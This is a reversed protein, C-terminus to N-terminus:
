QDTVVFELGKQYIELRAQDDGLAAYITALDFFIQACPQLRNAEELYDRAKGYLEMQMCIHGLAALLHPNQPHQKLWKEALALQKKSEKVVLAAFATILEDQWQANLRKSLLNFASSADDRAVLADVYAILIETEQRLQKPIKSWLADLKSESDADQAEDSFSRLLGCYTAVELQRLDKKEYVQLKKLVPLLDFLTSWDAYKQATSSLSKLVDLNEPETQYLSHLTKLAQKHKSDELLFDVWLLDAQLTAEPFRNKLDQLLQQCLQWDKNKGAATAAYLLNVQPTESNKSSQSLLKSSKQWDKKLFLLLGSATQSVQQSRRRNSWWSRMGGALLLWRLLALVGILGVTCILYILVGLWFSMEITTGALSILIYGRDQQVLWIGVAGVLLAFVCFLLTRRM